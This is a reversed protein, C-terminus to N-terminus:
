WHIGASSYCFFIVNHSLIVTKIRDSIVLNLEELVLAQNTTPSQLIHFSVVRIRTARQFFILDSLFVPGTMFTLSSGPHFLSMRIDCLGPENPSEESGCTPLRERQAKEPAFDETVQSARTHSRFNERSQQTFVTKITETTHLQFFFVFFSLHRYNGTLTSIEGKYKM